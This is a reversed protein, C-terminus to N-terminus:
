DYIGVVYTANFRRKDLRIKRPVVGFSDGLSRSSELGSFILRQDTFMSDIKEGVQREFIPNPDNPRLVTLIKNRVARLNSKVHELWPNGECRVPVPFLTILDAGTGDAERPIYAEDLHKYWRCLGPFAGSGYPLKQGIRDEVESYYYRALNPMDGKILERCHRELGLVYFAGPGTKIGPKSTKLYWSGNKDCHTVLAANSLRLRIPTVDHGNYYDGGCSERFHSKRFSKDKNLLLGVKPLAVCASEVWSSLMIIDDGYIYIYPAVKNYPLDYDNMVQRVIALHILLSMTPFTLGSGMGALKKLKHLRPNAAKLHADSHTKCMRTSTTIFRLLPSQRFVHKVVEYSVRDSASKLDLTAFKRNCSASQALSRNTGQDVFNIRFNTKQELKQSVFANYAMQVRLLRHPERVITRPGRSDKPVFLLENYDNDYVVDCIPDRAGFLRAGTSYDWNSFERPLPVRLEKAIHWPVDFSSSSTGPGPRPPCTNFVKDLTVDHICKFETAFLKRCEDVFDWNISTEINEDEKIFSSPDENVSNTVVTKYFYSCLQRLTRLANHADSKVQFSDPDFIKSLTSVMFIPLGRKLQFYTFGDGHFDCYGREICSLVYAEFKPLTKSLFPFGEHRVRKLIYDRDSIPLNLDQSLAIVAKELSIM